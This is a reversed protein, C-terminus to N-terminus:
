RRELVHFWTSNCINWNNQQTPLKIYPIMEYSRM